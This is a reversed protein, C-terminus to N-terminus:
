TGRNGPMDLGESASGSSWVWLIRGLIHPHWLSQFDFHQFKVVSFSTLNSYHPGNKLQVILGLALLQFLFTLLNFACLLILMLGRLSVM